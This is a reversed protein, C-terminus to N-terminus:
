YKNSLFYKYIDEKQKNQKSEKVKTLIKMANDIEEQSIIGDGNVDIQSQISKLYEPMICYSSDEHFIFETIVFFVATLLLSLLIDRTGMWCAAFIVFERAVHNKLYDEQSKSLKVTIFKSGINLCIMIIGAFIKSNNVNNLNEQISKLIPNM